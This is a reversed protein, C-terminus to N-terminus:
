AKWCLIYVERSRDRSARVSVSEVRRFQTHVEQLFADFDAGRLVKVVCVGGPRLWRAGIGLALRALEISRFQDVDAVGSTSPALDSLLLDFATIGTAQLDSEVGQVDELSREFTRVNSAALPDIPTRDVGVIMGQGQLKQAIYQLWSGPAAGLDLVNLGPRLLRFREDLEMLKYVSRARYGEVKARRAWSDQPVFPKTVV